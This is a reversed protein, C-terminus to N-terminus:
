IKIYIIKFNNDLYDYQRFILITTNEKRSRVGRIVKEQRIVNTLFLTIISAMKRKNRVKFIIM